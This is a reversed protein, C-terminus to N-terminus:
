VVRSGRGCLKAAFWAYKLMCCFIPASLQHHVLSQIKICDERSSIERDQEIIYACNQLRKIFNKVQRYFYVDCLQVLPTCKPPIVKMTCTPIGKDDRFIEDCLVPNTQGGWSDILFLFKEEKVYPKMVDILFDQVISNDAQWVKLIYHCRKYINECVRRSIKHVRPGFNGNAEQLCIFVTPLLKGSLTM